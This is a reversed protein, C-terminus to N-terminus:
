FEDSTSVLVTVEKENVEVDKDKFCCSRLLLRNVGLIYAENKSM